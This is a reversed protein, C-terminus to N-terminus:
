RTRETEESDGGPQGLCVGPEIRYGRLFAEADMRKKGELQLSKIKLAGEGTQVAIFDKGVELVTGPAEENKSNVVDAEWVKLMKGRLRTYASPWPNLGRILRELCVASKTFDMEGMSKTLMKAYTKEEPNQPAPHLTGAEAQELVELLLPGGLLSLKEFLSGGTEKPELHYRQVMLIDGTDIGEDMQQITVGSEEDGNIVSWQIPAAGRLKPLLSAHVNLCGFRPLTLINKPLIQGFAVVIIVDPKMQAIEQM